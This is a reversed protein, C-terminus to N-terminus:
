LNYLAPISSSAKDPPAESDGTCSTLIYMKPDWRLIPRNLLDPIIIACSQLYALGM